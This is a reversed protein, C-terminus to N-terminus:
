GGAVTSSETYAQKSAPTKKLAARDRIRHERPYTEPTLFTTVVTVLAMSALYLAIPEPARYHALLATAIIPALGGGLVSAIERGIGLGSFRLRAPLLESIYPPQAGELLGLVLGNAVVLGTVIVWPVGSEFMLFFPYAFLLMALAGALYVSKRGLRDCAYGALLACPIMLVMSFTLAGLVFTNSLGLFKGYAISFTFFIWAACGEGLRLGFIMLIERPHCRLVEMVPAHASKGSTSIESFEQSEDMHRRLYLGVGILVLSFLFPVRWGWTMFAEGSVTEALMFAGTSMAFGVVAGCPAWASFRGRQSQHTNESIVLISGSWEGGAALGQVLRLAVLLIPAAIGISQYTPLFGMLFTAAGMAGLTLTLVMKRGYRDGLHGCIIGGVPRAIFGLALGGYAAITGTLPDEDIPFFLEGFVLAAATGYLFFDYWELIQGIVSIFVARVVRHSGSDPSVGTTPATMKNKM